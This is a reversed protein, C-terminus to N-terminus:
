ESSCSPVDLKVHGAPIYDNLPVQYFGGVVSSAVNNTVDIALALYIYEGENNNMCKASAHKAVFDVNVVGKASNELHYGSQMLENRLLYDFSNYFATNAPSRLYISNVSRELKEDLMEVLELAAFRMDDINDNNKNNSYEYGIDRAPAGKASKFAQDYSSYGRPMPKPSPSIAYCGTLIFSLSLLMSLSLFSRM